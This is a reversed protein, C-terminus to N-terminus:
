MGMKKLDDLTMEKYGEPVTMKFLDASKKDLKEELSTVTMKMKMGGNNIEFQMPFGPVDENLYSQGKKSVSIDETYWFVTEGGEEDTLTAKKCVYGEITKTENGLVVEYKPKGIKKMEQMEETTTKIANNGMMGGMLMLLEGSIEDTITTMTMMTGMKMESRTIKDKFLIDLTSGQMMGVAMEMEPNTTSVDIKYAIHGEKLQDVSAIVAAQKSCITNVLTGRTKALEIIENAVEDKNAFMYYTHDESLSYIPKGDYFFVVYSSNGYGGYSNQARIDFRAWTFCEVQFQKKSITHSIYQVSSPNKFEGEKKLYNFGTIVEVESLVYQSFSFECQLIM